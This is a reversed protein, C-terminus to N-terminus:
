FVNLSQHLSFFYNTNMCVFLYVFQSQVQSPFDSFYVLAVLFQFCVFRFTDALGIVDDLLFRRILFDTRM